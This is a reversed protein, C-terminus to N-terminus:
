EARAGSSGSAPGGSAGRGEDASMGGTLARHRPAAPPAEPMEFFDDPLSAIQLLRGGVLEEMIYAFNPVEAPAGIAPTGTIMPLQATLLRRLYDNM